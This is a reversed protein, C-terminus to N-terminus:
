IPTLNSSPTRKKRPPFRSETSSEAGRGEAESVLRDLDSVYGGVYAERVRRLLEPDSGAPFLDEYDGNSMTRLRGSVQLWQDDYDRVRDWIGLHSYVENVLRLALVRGLAASVIAPISSDLVLSAM